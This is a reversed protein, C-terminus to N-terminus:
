KVVRTVCLHPHTMGATALARGVAKGALRTGSGASAGGIRQPIRAGPPMAWAKASATWRWVRCRTTATPDRDASRASAKASRKPM